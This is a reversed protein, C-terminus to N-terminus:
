PWFSPKVNTGYFTCDVCYKNAASFGSLTRGNIITDKIDAIPELNDYVFYRVLTDKDLDTILRYGCDLPANWTPPLEDNNIFVRPYTSSFGAGIYGIVTELPHTVSEVNGNDISPQGAFISGIQETNKQLAFWFNYGATDLAYQKVVISYLVSLRPDHEEIFTLPQEYVVSSKLDATSALIINPSGDTPWYKYVQSTRPIITDHSYITRPVIFFYSYTYNQLFQYYSYYQSHVEWTESYDWRYYPAPNQLGHTNGYVQVGGNQLVWNISDIPPSVEVPVFDSIYEEGQPTFIHLRYQYAKNLPLTDVSSYVGNGEDTLSYTNGHDDEVRVQAGPQPNQQSTDSIIVTRSLNIVTPISGDIYGEVVLYGTGTSKVPPTYPVRRSILCAIVVYCFQYTGYLSKRM